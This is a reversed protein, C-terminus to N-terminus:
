ENESTVRNLLGALVAAAREQSIDSSYFTDWLQSESELVNNVASPSLNCLRNLFDASNVVDLVLDAPHFTMRSDHKTLHDRYTSGDLCKVAQIAFKEASADSSGAMGRYIPLLLRPISLEETLPVYVSVSPSATRNYFVAFAHNIM